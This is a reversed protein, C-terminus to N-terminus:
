HTCIKKKNKLYVKRIEPESATNADSTSEMMTGAESSADSSSPNQSVPIRDSCNTRRHNSSSTQIIDPHHLLTHLQLNGLLFVPVVYFFGFPLFMSDFDKGGNGQSRSRKNM